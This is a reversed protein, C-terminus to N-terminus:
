MRGTAAMNSLESYLISGDSFFTRNSPVPEVPLLFHNGAGGDRPGVKRGERPESCKNDRSEPRTAPASKSVSSM